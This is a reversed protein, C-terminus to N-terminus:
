EKVEIPKIAKVWDPANLIDKGQVAYNGMAQENSIHAFSNWFGEENKFAYWKYRGYLVNGEFKEMPLIYKKNPDIQPTSTDKKKYWSVLVYNHYSNDEEQQVEVSYGYNPLLRILNNLHYKRKYATGWPTPDYEYEYLKVSTEENDIAQRIEKFAEDLEKPICAEEKEEVNNFAEDATIINDRWHLVSKLGESNQELNDLRKLIAKVDNKLSIIGLKDAIDMQAEEDLSEFDTTKFMNFLGM